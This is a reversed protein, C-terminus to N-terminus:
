GHLLGLLQGDGSRHTPRCCPGCLTTPQIVRPQPALPALRPLPPRAPPRASQPAAPWAKRSPRPPGEADVGRLMPCLQHALGSALEPVCWPTMSVGLGMHGSAVFAAFGHSWPQLGVHALRVRGDRARVITLLLITLLGM